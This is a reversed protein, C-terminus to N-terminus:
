QCTDVEPRDEEPTSIKGDSQLDFNIENRGSEVEEKLETQSNYRGPVRDGVIVPEGFRDKKTVEARIRVTHTGVEAGGQNATYRLVYRGEDDTTGTSPRGEHEPQFEVTAGSLPKGNLKV